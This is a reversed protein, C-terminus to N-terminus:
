TKWGWVERPEWDPALDLYKIALLAVEKSVYFQDWNPLTVGWPVTDRRLQWGLCVQPGPGGYAMQNDM